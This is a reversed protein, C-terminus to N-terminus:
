ECTEASESAHECTATADDCARAYRPEETHEDALACMRSRLDCIHSALVKIRECRDGESKTNGTKSDVATPAATPGELGRLEDRAAALEAELQQMDDMMAGDGSGYDRRQKSDPPSTGPPDSARCASLGFVGATLVVAALSWSQSM